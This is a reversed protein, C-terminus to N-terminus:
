KGKRRAHEERLETKYDGYGGDQKDYLVLPQVVPSLWSAAKGPPKTHREQLVEQEAFGELNGCDGGQAVDECM